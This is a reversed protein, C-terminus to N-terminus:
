LGIHDNVFYEIQDINEPNVISWFVRILNKGKLIKPDISSFYGFEKTLVEKFQNAKRGKEAGSIEDFKLRREIDIAKILKEKSENYILILQILFKIKESMVAWQAPTNYANRGLYLAQFDNIYKLLEKNNGDDVASFKKLQILMDDIIVKENFDIKRSITEIKARESFKEEILKFDLANINFLLLAHIDFLQKIQEDLRDEQIGITNPGLTTLKDAFLHNIPLINYANDSEVAFLNCGQVRNIEFNCPYTIFEVKINQRSFRMGMLESESCVSPVAVYYTYLPLDTKPSGPMHQKFKFFTEDAGLVQEIQNIATDIEEKTGCFIMDIDVSTRQYGIPLYFQVAAGGKLVVRDKFIEQIHLFMELDWLFLEMRAINRIGYTHMRQELM